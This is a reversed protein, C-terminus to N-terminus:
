QINFFKRANKATTELVETESIGKVQAVIKASKQIKWPRNNLQINDVSSDPDLWPADTELLMSGLPTAKALLPHKKTWCINTAYSIYYGNDLAAKLNTENGSFCHMMVNKANREALIEIADSVAKKEGNRSHIVVPLSLEEALDLMSNFVDITESYNRTAKLGDLGIEGIAVIGKKNQKIMNIYEDAYEQIEMPHIGMCIFLNKPFKKRLLLVKEAEKVSLASTVIANVGKSVSEEIAAETNEVYDIHCHADIMEKGWYPM